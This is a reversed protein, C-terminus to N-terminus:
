YWQSPPLHADLFSGFGDYEEIDDGYREDLDDWSLLERTYSSCKEALYWQMAKDYDSFRCLTGIRANKSVAGYIEGDKQLAARLRVEKEDM